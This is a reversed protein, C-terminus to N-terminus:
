QGVEQGDRRRKALVERRIALEESASIGQAKRWLAEHTMRGECLCKEILDEIDALYLLRARGVRRLTIGHEAALHPIEEAEILLGREEFEHAADIVGAPYRRIMEERVREPDDPWRAQLRDRCLDDYDTRSIIYKELM